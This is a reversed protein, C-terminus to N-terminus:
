RTIRLWDRQVRWFDRKPQLPEFYARKVINIPAPNVNGHQFVQVSGDHSRGCGM